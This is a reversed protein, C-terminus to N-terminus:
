DEHCRRTSEIVQEGVVVADEVEETSEHDAPMQHCKIADSQMQHSSIADSHMQTFGLPNSPDSRMLDCRMCRERERERERQDCGIM